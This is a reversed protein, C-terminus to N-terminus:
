PWCNHREQELKIGVFSKQNARKNNNTQSPKTQNPKLPKTQAPKHNPKTQKNKLNALTVMRQVDM